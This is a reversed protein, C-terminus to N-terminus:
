GGGAGLRRLRAARGGSARPLRARLIVATQAWEPVGIRKGKLQEAGRAEGGERVYIMSHRFVRSPFVPIAAFGDDGQSRLSVVKGMSMESVKGNASFPYLSLLGGRPAPHARQADRGAGARSGLRPRTHAEYDGIALTLAVKEM